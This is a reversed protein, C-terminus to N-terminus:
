GRGGDIFVIKLPEQRVLGSFGIILGIFGIILILRTILRRKM